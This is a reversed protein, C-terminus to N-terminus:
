KTIEMEKYTIAWIRNMSDMDVKEVELRFEYGKGVKSRAEVERRIARRAVRRLNDSNLMDSPAKIGLSVKAHWIGYGDAYTTIENRM